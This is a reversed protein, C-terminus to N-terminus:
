DEDEPAKISGEVDISGEDVDMEDAKRKGNWGDNLKKRFEECAIVGPIPEWAAILLSAAASQESLRNRLATITGGAASFARECDVSTAPCSLYDLAMQVLRAQDGGLLHVREWYGIVDNNLLCPLAPERIYRKYADETGATPTDEESSEDFLRRCGSTRRPLAPAPAPAPPQASPVHEVEVPSGKYDKNWIGRGLDFTNDRWDQLWKAWDMFKDKKSPHMIMAVCPVLTKDTLEYYKDLVTTALKAAHRVTIHLADNCCLDNLGSHLKNIVSFTQHMLPRGKLSLFDTLDIFHHFINKLQSLINWEAASLAHKALGHTDDLYCYDPSRPSYKHPPRLPCSHEM